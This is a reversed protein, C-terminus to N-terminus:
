LKKLEALLVRTDPRSNVDHVDIYRIVGQRDIVFLARESVGNRRLVGYRSSVRGHPFFDSAVLFWDMGPRQGMSIIWSHLAPLNDTSIGILVTNLEVFDEKHEAYEPWQASCNPTWAAPVFSLVVNKKGLYSSLKVKSGAPGLVPLEFDPAKQGVKVRLRSDRPAMLPAPYVLEPPVVGSARRDTQQDEPPKAVDPVPSAVGVKKLEENIYYRYYDASRPGVIKVDNVFVTPTYELALDDVALMFNSKLLPRHKHSEFNQRIENEPIGLEQGLKILFDPSIAAQNEFLREHAEWFKGHDAATLAFEAAYESYPGNVALTVATLQVVGGYQKMVERLEPAMKACHRCMFDSVEVIKVKATPNGATPRGALDVNLANSTFVLGFVLASLSLSFLFLKSLKRSKM